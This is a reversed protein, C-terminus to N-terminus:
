NLKDNKRGDSGRGLEHHQGESHHKVSWGSVKTVEGLDLEASLTKVCPLSLCIFFQILTNLHNNLHRSMKNLIVHPPGEEQLSRWKNPLM